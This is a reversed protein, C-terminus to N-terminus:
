EFVERWYIIRDHGRYQQFSITAPPLTPNNNHDGDQNWDFRLWPLSTLDVNVAFSGTVGPATFFHGANGDIFNVNNVDINAYQGIASGGGLNVARNADTSISVPPTGYRINARPIQTCNDPARSWFNGAAWYETAFNVALPATEPGFADDLRLRGFRMVRPDGLKVATCANGACAGASDANMNRDALERNDGDGTIRVGFQLNGLPGDPQTTTQRNFLAANTNVNLAGLTWDAVPVQLRSGRNTMDDNDEADYEPTARRAYGPARYNSTVGGQLNRAELRYSLNFPQAMYSFGSCGDNIQPNVVVFEQPYFRGITGSTTHSALGGTGTESVGLYASLRPRLNISGVEDWRLNNHALTGAASGAIVSGTQTLVGNNGGAPYVLSGVELSVGSRQSVVENGFNPTRQGSANRVELQVGFAEGAARFGSGSNTTGSNGPVQSVVITHPKVVFESSIGSLTVAPEPASAALALRAHLRLRGVDSYNIPLPASGSGNFLLAVNSYTIAANNNNAHLQIVQNTSNLTTLTQGTICSTPNRCEYGMQVTRTGTVRAECVGTTTNTRVARLVTTNNTTGAVQNPVSLVNPNANTAFALGASNFTTTCANLSCSSGQCCQRPNLGALQEGGLTVTVPTGNAALPYTLFTSAVGGANFALTTSALAGASVALNATTGGAALFSNTCPSSSDACAIVTVPTAMCAISTAPVQLEYHHPSILPCSRVRARLGEIDSQTLAGIYIEVEDINGLFHFSSQRGEASALTEGGIAATGTGDVWNGSYSGTTRALQTGSASYVYLTVTRATTDITAAVYHWANTAIVTNTDLCFVGCNGNRGQGTVTGTNQINRNFFRLRPEGTGDALSLGWGNDADDRVLIRQHQAGANTSRIWATFTFSSPLAPFGSLELYTNTRVPTTTSDFQGYSCTSQSGSTFAPTVLATSATPTAGAAIRARGHNNNGSSDIVENATGNWYPEDMRWSGLLVPASIGDCFPAFNGASLADSDYNITMSQAINVSSGSVSGHLVSAFGFTVTGAAYIQANLNAENQTTISGTSYILLQGPSFNQTAVRFGMSVNGNVFIRVTGAAGIRRLVTEQGLTLNGNIWYTGPSLRLESRFNTTVARTLYTANASSFTLTADQGVTVTNYNGVAMSLTTTAPVNITGNATNGTVFTPSSTAAPAGSSNCVSGGCTAQSWGQMHLNTTHLTQGGGNVITNGGFTVSGGLAHSQVGNTFIADCAVAWVVGTHLCFILALAIRIIM